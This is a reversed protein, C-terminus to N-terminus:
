QVEHVYLYVQHTKGCQTSRTTWKARMVWIGHDDRVEWVPGREVEGEMVNGEAM